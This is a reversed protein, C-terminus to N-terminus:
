SEEITSLTDRLAQHTAEYAEIQEDPTRGTVAALGALAADVVPHGTQPVGHDVARAGGEAPAADILQDGAPAPQDGARPPDEVERNAAMLDAPETV